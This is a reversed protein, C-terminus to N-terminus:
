RQLNFLTQFEVLNHAHYNLNCHLYLLLPSMLNGQDKQVMVSQMNTIILEGEQDKLWCNAREALVEFGEFGDEVPM